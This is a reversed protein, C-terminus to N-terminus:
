NLAVSTGELTARTMMRQKDRERKKGKGRQTPTAARSGEPTELNIHGFMLGEQDRGDEGEKEVEQIPKLMRWFAKIAEGSEKKPTYVLQVKGGIYIVEETGENSEITEVENPIIEEIM